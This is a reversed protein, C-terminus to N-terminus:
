FMPAHTAAGMAAAMALAASILVLTSIQDLRTLGNRAEVRMRASFAEATEVRLGPMSRLQRRVDAAAREASVGPPLNLELATPQGNPWARRYDASNMVIAGPAWGLNTLLGAIRFTQQGAPVALTLPDGIALHQDDAVARSVAVWGSSRLRAAAATANGEILQDRALAASESRPRAVLWM